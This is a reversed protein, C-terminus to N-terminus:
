QKCDPWRRIRLEDTCTYRTILLNGAHFNTGTVYSTMCTYWQNSVLKAFPAKINIFKYARHGRSILVLVRLSSFYLIYLIFLVLGLTELMWIEYPM